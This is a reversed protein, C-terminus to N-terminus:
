YTRTCKNLRTSIETHFLRNGDIVGRLAIGTM